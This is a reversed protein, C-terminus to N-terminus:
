ANPTEKKFAEAPVFVWAQVWAGGDESDSVAPKCAAIAGVQVHETTYLDYAAARYRAMTALQDITATTQREFWPLHQNRVQRLLGDAKPSDGCWYRRLKSRWQHGNAKAFDDLALILEDSPESCPPRGAM